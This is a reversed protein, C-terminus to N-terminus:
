IRVSDAVLRADSSMAAGWCVNRIALETIGKM